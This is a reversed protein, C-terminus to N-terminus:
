GQNRAARAYWVATATGGRAELSQFIRFGDGYTDTRTTIIHRERDCGDRGELLRWSVWEAFGERLRPGQADACAEAQWAHGIEHGLVATLRARPMPMLVHISATEDHRVFLGCLGEPPSDSGEKARLLAASELVLTPRRQLNLGLRTAAADLLDVYLSTVTQQDEVLTAACEPCFARGDRLVLTRIPAGCATCPTSTEMCADCYYGRGGAVVWAHEGM